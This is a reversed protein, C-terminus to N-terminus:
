HIGAVPSFRSRDGSFHHLEIPECGLSDRCRSQFEGTQSILRHCHNDRLRTFGPLPVSVPM